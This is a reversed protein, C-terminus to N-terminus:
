AARQKRRRKGSTVLRAIVLARLESEDVGYVRAVRAVDNLAPACKGNEWKWVLPQSVSLARAIETQYRDGRARTLLGALRGMLLNM